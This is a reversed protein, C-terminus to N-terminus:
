EMRTKNRLGYEKNKIMDNWNNPLNVKDLTRTNATLVMLSYDWGFNGGPVNSQVEFLFFKDTLIVDGKEIIDTCNIYTEDKIYINLKKKQFRTERFSVISNSIDNEGELIAKFGRLANLEYTLKKTTRYENKNLDWNAIIKDNVKIILNEGKKEMSVEENRDYEILINSSTRSKLDRLKYVMDDFNVAFATDEQIELYPFTDSGLNQTWTNEVYISRITFPPLYIRSGEFTDGSYLEDVSSEKKDLKFVYIEPSVLNIYHKNLFSIWDKTNGRSIEDFYNFQSM